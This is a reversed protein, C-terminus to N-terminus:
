PTAGEGGGAGLSWPSLIMEPTAKSSAQLIPEVGALLTIITGPTAASGETAVIMLADGKLLDSLTAAPMRAIM